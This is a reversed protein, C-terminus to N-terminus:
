DAYVPSEIKKVLMTKPPHGPIRLVVEDGVVAGLLTQALPTNESIIGQELKSQGYVIRVLQEKNPQALDVYTVLDGVEAEIEEDGSEILVTSEALAQSESSVATTEVGLDLQRPAHIPAPARPATLTFAPREEAPVPAPAAEEAVVEEVYAMDLPDAARDRLFQLLRQTEHRPNRFWDTSWIRWIRGKWGLTELIEQRIRDRDRVSAGSHYAAGDCEVAAVYAGRFQPHRVAIDIRYGAVGLQPVVEHGAERLVETVAKEFDSEAMGGTPAMDVMVGSRAYELYERLTKTGRPTTNDVVINEPLMSSFVHISKRARTFLVNLRRWGTQRGIPGFTQRVETTQENPPGFTTSIFITDREDGQVSELNKVFLGMGEEEWRQRFGDTAPFSRCRQELLEEVLDRQKLNLTVIGLSDEPHHMMHDIAADVVRAAEKKNTQGQYLAGQVYHYRIGLRKSKEYPSPFVVLRNDYFAHNSFAILSHHQSRYHWRLTRVPRFHGMCVDLISESDETAARQGEDGDDTGGLRDFFTTPPLQKPDGVVILQTGRAIAGMAEEPKLQSAEDMIVVDFTLFGAPLYQAVAQPGMMFCPKLEQVAGGANTIMRRLTVRTGPHAVMYRILEMQTKDGVRVGQNGAPPNAHGEAKSACEKGRLATIEHDLKAYEARIQEHSQGAFQALDRHKLFLGDAISAFFRYGFGPVIHEPAIIAGELADVFENLGRARARAASQVYQVWPLLLDPHARADATRSVLRDVFDVDRREATAWQELNFTGLSQMAVVFEDVAAWGARVALVIRVLEKHNDSVTESLLLQTMASPLRTRLVKRGYALAAAVPELQTDPGHYRDGLLARAASDSDVAAIAEPLAVRAGVARLVELAPLEPNGWARLHATADRLRKESEEGFTLRDQWLRSALAGSVFPTGGLTGRLATLFQEIAAVAEQTPSHLAALKALYAEDRDLLGRSSTGADTLARHSKCHWRALKLAAEFRPQREDFCPGMAHRYDRSERWAKDDRQFKLLRELEALRAAGTKKAKTRDLTRHMRCAARWRSQLMRYWADGERLVAIAQTLAEEPPVADLYLMQDLAEKEKCLAEFEAQARLVAQETGPEGLAVHRLPLFERPAAAAVEMVTALQRVSHPDSDFPLGVLKATARLGQLATLGSQTARALGVTSSELFSATHGEVGLEALSEAIREARAAAAGDILANSLLRNGVTNRLRAVADVKERFHELTAQSAVAERDDASFLRPLMEHAMEDPSSPTVSELLNFITQASVPDLRFDRLALFRGGDSLATQMAEFRLLFTRLMEELRLDTGPLLDSIFLGWYPHAAGYSGIEGYQRVTAALTATLSEFQAPNLSAADAVRVTQLRVFDAKCDLRYREARWLVQHVTMDCANGHKGNLLDAYAQLQRSIEELRSLKTPLERPAPFEAAMRKELEDLVHKKQTKNSHLELCFHELGALVLRKKVVQLAALKESVFLVKKGQAVCVAILNTITQSKGTGPPGEIVLNKGSLADILASHQSSDADYILPISQLQHGDIVHEPAHERDGGDHPTGKFVMQVTDHSILQSEGDADAPWKDPDTDIFMRMKSFSLLALTM